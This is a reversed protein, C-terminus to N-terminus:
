QHAANFTGSADVRFRVKQVDLMFEHFHVRLKKKLPLCDFFADVTMTKGQGVGGWIYLGRIKPKLNAAAKEATRPKQQTTRPVIRRWLSCFASMMQPQTSAPRQQIEDSLGETLLSFANPSKFHQEEIADLLAQMEKMLDKQAESPELNGHKLLDSFYELLRKPNDPDVEIYNEKLDRARLAFTPVGALLDVTQGTPQPVAVSDGIHAHTEM